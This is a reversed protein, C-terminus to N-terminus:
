LEEMATVMGLFRFEDITRIFTGIRAATGLGEPEACMNFLLAATRSDVSNLYGRIYLFVILTQQLM